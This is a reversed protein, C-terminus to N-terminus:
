PATREIGHIGGVAATKAIRLRLRADVMDTLIDLPQCDLGGSTRMDCIDRLTAWDPVDSRPDFTEVILAAISALNMVAGGGQRHRRLFTERLREMANITRDRHDTPLYAVPM